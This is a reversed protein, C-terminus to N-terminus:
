AEEDALVAGNGDISAGGFPPRRSEHPSNATDRALRNSRQDVSMLVAVVGVAVAEQRFRGDDAVTAAALAHQTRADASEVGDESRHLPAFELHSGREDGEVLP